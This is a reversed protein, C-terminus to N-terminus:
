TRRGAQLELEGVTHQFAARVVPEDASRVWHLVLTPDGANLAARAATVVPGRTTDCHSSAPPSIALAGLLPVTAAFIRIM